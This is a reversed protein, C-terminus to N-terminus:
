INTITSLDQLLVAKDEPDKINAAAQQALSLYKKANIADGKVNFARAM